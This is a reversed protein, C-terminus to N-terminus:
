ATTELAGTSPGYALDTALSSKQFEFWGGVMYATTAALGTLVVSYPDTADSGSFVEYSTGSQPNQQLIAVAVFKVVSWGSPLPSPASATVTFQSAGPTVTISAALGGKAGPSLIIGTLATLGRLTGTNKSLFANRGVFPQGKAYLDWPATFDSPAQKWVANLWAFTNRTKTQETSKPNAPIIYRRSYNIGRWKSYVQTKALQGSAGISLLPGTVVAM